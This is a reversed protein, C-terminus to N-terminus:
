CIGLVGEAGGAFFVLKRTLICPYFGERSQHFILIFVIFGVEVFSQEGRSKGDVSSDGRIEDVEDDDSRCTRLAFYGALTASFFVLLIRM